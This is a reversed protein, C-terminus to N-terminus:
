KGRIKDAIYRLALLYGDAGLGSISGTCGAATISVKRFDERSHINSLHVEVKPIPAAKLADLLAISTHTYGAPNIIIADAENIAKHIYCILEGESNSQMFRCQVGLEIALHAIKQNIEDLTEGGYIEPERKGLLNLNPGNIIFINKM